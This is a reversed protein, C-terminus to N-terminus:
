TTRRRRILGAAALGLGLMALSGPEPVQVANFNIVYSGAVGPYGAPNTSEDNLVYQGNVYSGGINLDHGTGGDTTFSIGGFDVFGPNATSPDYFLNDSGAYPSLGTINYASGLVITGTANTVILSNPQGGAGDTTLTGSGSCGITPDQCSLWWDYIADARAAPALSLLTLSAIALAAVRTLSQRVNM